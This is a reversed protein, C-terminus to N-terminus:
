RAKKAPKKKGPKKSSNELAYYVSEGKKSGYESKLATMKKKQVPM